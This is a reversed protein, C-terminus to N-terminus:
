GHGIAVVPEDSLSGVALEVIAECGPAGCECMFERVVSEAEGAAWPRAFYARVQTAISANAERLLARREAATEARPGSDIAAAFRGEVEAVVQDIEWSDRVYVIPM